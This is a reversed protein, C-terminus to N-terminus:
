MPAVGERPWLWGMTDEVDGSQIGTLTEMLKIFAPGATKGNGIDVKATETASTHYTVSRVPTIVAATGAAAIEDFKGSKVDQFPVPQVSVNWGLLNAAIDAISKTTVSKLISPSEPVVLTPKRLREADATSQGNEYSLLLCNSTSFEDIMSRTASDLHLTIPYGAKKAAAM